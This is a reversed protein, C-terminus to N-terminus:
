LRVRNIWMSALVLCASVMSFSLLSPLRASAKDTDARGLDLQDALDDPVDLYVRDFGFSFILKRLKQVDVFDNASSWITISSENTENVAAVLGHLQDLSNAAIGARVPFTIPHQKTTVNNNKIAVLMEDIERETYYGETYNAGWLTTWGISLVATEFKAAGAFFREPDVPVTNSQNVPGSIIDANLWVPHSMLPILQSLIDLSGEFVEISKFDLKVGKADDVHEENHELIRLLFELLSLDSSNAPPHAMVPLEDGTNNLRGLVIDAEIMNIDSELAEYLEKQSNVAHAWTIATLNVRDEVSMTIIPM